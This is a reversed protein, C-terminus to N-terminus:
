LKLAWIHEDRQVRGNFPGTNVCELVHTTLLFVNIHTPIVIALCMRTEPTRSPVVPFNYYASDLPVNSLMMTLQDNERKRFRTKFLQLKLFAVTIKANGPQNIPLSYWIGERLEM